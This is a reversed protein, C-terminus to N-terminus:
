RVPGPDVPVAPMGQAVARSILHIPTPGSGTPLTLAVYAPRDVTFWTTRGGEDAGDGGARFWSVEDVVQLPSSAVFEVPRDLGCRMIVPEGDSETLWAAAGAPTPEATQARHYDGMQEPLVEMLARCADGDAQPAPASAIAVPRRQPEVERTAAVGLVGVIAAAAVVVAAILM